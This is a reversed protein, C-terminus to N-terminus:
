ASYTIAIKSLSIAIIFLMIAAMVINYFITEKTSLPKSFFTNQLFSPKFAIAIIRLLFVVSAFSAILIYFYKM